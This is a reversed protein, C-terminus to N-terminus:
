KHYEDMRLFSNEFNKQHHKLVQAHIRDRLACSNQLSCDAKNLKASDGTKLLFQKWKCRPKAKLIYSQFHLFCFLVQGERLLPFESRQPEKVKVIMEATYVDAASSVLEAGAHQYMEDTFGIKLGAGMQVLVEHGASVLLSVLGPTAGVRYEHNKIEKPIGIIM